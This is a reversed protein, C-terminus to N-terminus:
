LGLCYRVVNEIKAMYADSLKGAPQDPLLVVLEILAVAPALPPVIETVAFLEHPGETACVKLTVTIVIGACGPVM